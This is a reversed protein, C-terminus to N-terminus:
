EANESLASTCLLVDKMDANGTASRRAYCVEVPCLSRQGQIQSYSKFMRELDLVFRLLVHLRLDIIDEHDQCGCNKANLLSLGIIMHISLRAQNVLSHQMTYENLYKLSDINDCPLTIRVLEKGLFGQWPKGLGLPARPVIGLGNSTCYILSLLGSTFRVNTGPFLKSSAIANQVTGGSPTVHDM